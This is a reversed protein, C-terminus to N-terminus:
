FSFFRNQLRWVLLQKLCCDGIAPLVLLYTYHSVPNQMIIQM